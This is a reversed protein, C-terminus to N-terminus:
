ERDEEEGRDEGGAEWVGPGSGAALLGPGSLGRRQGRSWQCGRSGREGMARVEELGGGLGLDLLSCVLGM